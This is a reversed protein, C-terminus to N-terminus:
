KSAREIKGSEAKEKLKRTTKGKWEESTKANCYSEGDWVLNKRSLHLKGIVIVLSFVLHKCSYRNVLVVVLLSSAYNSPKKM